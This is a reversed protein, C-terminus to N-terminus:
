RDAEGDFDSLLGLQQLGQLGPLYSNIYENNAAGGAIPAAASATAASFPLKKMIPIQYNQYNFGGKAIINPDMLINIVEDLVEPPAENDVNNRFFRYLKRYWRDSTMTQDLASTAQRGFTHPDGSYGTPVRGQQISQGTSRFAEEIEIDDIFRSLTAEDPFLERLLEQVRISANEGFKGIGAGSNSKVTEVADQISKLAGFRFSQLSSEDMAELLPRIMEPDKGQGKFLGVGLNYADGLTREDAYIQRARQFAPVRPYVYAEIKGKAQTLFRVADADENRVARAIAAQLDGLVYNIYEVHGGAVEETFDKMLSATAIRDSATRVYPKMAPSNLFARFEPDFGLGTEYAKRYFPAAKRIAAKQIDELSRGSVEGQLARQASMSTRRNSGRLRVSTTELARARGPGPSRVAYRGLDRVNAGGVDIPMAEDSYEQYRKLLQRAENPTINDADMARQVMMMATNRDTGMIRDALYQFTNRVGAAGAALGLGMAPAMAAGFAGGQLGGSMRQGPEATGAGYLAGEALGLEALQVGTRQGQFSQVAGPAVTGATKLLGAASGIAGAMESGYSLWPHVARFDERQRRLDEMVDYYRENRTYGTEGLTYPYGARAMAELEDAFGFTLGQAGARVMGSTKTPARLERALQSDNMLSDSMMRNLLQNAHEVSRATIQMQKGNPMTAIYTFTEAPIDGQDDPLVDFGSGPFPQEPDPRDLEVLPSPAEQPM